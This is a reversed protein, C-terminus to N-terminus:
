LDAVDAKLVEVLSKNLLTIEYPDHTLKYVNKEDDIGIFDGDELERVHYYIKGELEVEYVDIPDILSLEEENFLHRIADFEINSPPINSASTAQSTPEDVKQKKKKFFGFM